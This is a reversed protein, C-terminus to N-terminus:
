IKNHITQKQKRKRKELKYILSLVAPMGLLAIEKTTFRRKEIFFCSALGATLLFLVLIMVLASHNNIFSLANRILGDM